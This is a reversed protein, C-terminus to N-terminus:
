LPIQFNPAPIIYPLNSGNIFARFGWSSRSWLRQGPSNGVPRLIPYICLDSWSNMNGAEKQGGVACLFAWTGDGVTKGTQIILLQPGWSKLRWRGRCSFFPLSCSPILIPSWHAYCNFLSVCGFDVSKRRLVLWSFLICLLYLLIRTYFGM